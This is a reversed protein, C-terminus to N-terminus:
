ITFLEEVDVLPRNRTLGMLKGEDNCILAVPTEFQYIAQILGGVLQQQTELELSIEADRPEVGREVTLVKIRTKTM